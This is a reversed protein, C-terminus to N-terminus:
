RWWPFTVAFLFPAPLDSRRGECHRHRRARRVWQQRHHRREIRGQRHERLPRRHRLMDRQRHNRLQRHHVTAPGEPDAVTVRVRSRAHEAAHSSAPVLLLGLLLLHAALIASRLM